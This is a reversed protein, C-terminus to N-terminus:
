PTFNSWLNSHGFDKHFKVNVEMPKSDKLQALDVIEKTYKTQSKANAHDM